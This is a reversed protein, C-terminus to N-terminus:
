LVVVSNKDKKILQWIAKCISFDFLNFYINVKHKVNGHQKKMGLIVFRTSTHGYIIGCLDILFLLNKNIWCITM